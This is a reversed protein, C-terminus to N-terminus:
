MIRRIYRILRLLFVTIILGGIIYLSLLTHEILMWIFFFLMFLVSLVVSLLVIAMILYDTKNM